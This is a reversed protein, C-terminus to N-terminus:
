RLQDGLVGQSGPLKATWAAVLEYIGDRRYFKPRFAEADVLARGNM